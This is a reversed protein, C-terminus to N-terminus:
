RRCDPNFNSMIYCLSTNTKAAKAAKEEDTLAAKLEMGSVLDAFRTTCDKFFENEVKEDSLLAHLQKETQFYGVHPVTIFVRVIEIGLPSTNLKLNKFRAKPHTTSGIKCLGNSLIAAYVYGKEDGWKDTKELHSVTRYDGIFAINRPFQTTM